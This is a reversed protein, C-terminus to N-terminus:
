SLTKHLNKTYTNQLERYYDYKVNIIAMKEDLERKNSVYMVDALEKSNIYEKDKDFPTYIFAFVDTSMAEYFRPSCMKGTHHLDDGLILTFKAKPLEIVLDNFGLPKCWETNPWGPDYGIVNMTYDGHGFFSNLIKNRNTHRNNGWYVFDFIRTESTHFSLAKYEDVFMKEFLPFYTKTSYEVETDLVSDNKYTSILHLNGEFAADLIPLITPDLARGLNSEVPKKREVFKKWYKKFTFKPDAQFYVFKGTFTALKQWLEIIEDGCSGGFFNVPQNYILVVDYDNFDTDYVNKYHPTNLEDRIPRSVFDVEFGKTLMIARIAILERVKVQKATLSIRSMPNVIALKRM